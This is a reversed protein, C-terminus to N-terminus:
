REKMKAHIYKIKACQVDFVTQLSDRKMRLLTLGTLQEATAKGQAKLSEVVSKRKGYEANVSRLDEDAKQVAQQAAKLNVEQYLKLAAKRADIADPCKSRLSDIYAMSKAYDGRKAEMRAKGLWEEAQKEASRGGCASMSLAIAAAMAM